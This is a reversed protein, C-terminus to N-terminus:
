ACASSGSGSCSRHQLDHNVALSGSTKLCGKEPKATLVTILAFRTCVSESPFFSSSFSIDFLKSLQFAYMNQIHLDM